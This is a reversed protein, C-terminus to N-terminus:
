GFRSLAGVTAPCRCKGRRDQGGGDHWGDRGNEEATAHGRVGDNQRARCLDARLGMVETSEIAHVRKSRWICDRLLPTADQASNLLLGLCRVLTMLDRGLPGLKLLRSSPCTAHTPDDFSEKNNMGRSFRSPYFVAMIIVAVIFVGLVVWLAIQIKNDSSCGSAKALNVKVKM